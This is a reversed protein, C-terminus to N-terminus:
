GGPVVLRNNVRSVGSVQRAVSEAASRSATSPVLGHLGIVKGAAISVQVGLDATRQDRKLAQEVDRVLVLDKQEAAVVAPSQEDPARVKINQSIRVGGSAAEAAAQARAAATASDVEGTLVVVDAHTTVSVADAPVDNDMRLAQRVRAAAADVDPKGPDAVQPVPPADKSRPMSTQPGTTQPTSTQAFTAIPVALATAVALSILAQKM